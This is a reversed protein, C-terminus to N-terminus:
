ETPLSISPVGSYNSWPQGMPEREVLSSTEIPLTNSLFLTVTDVFLVHGAIPCLFLFGVAMGFHFIVGTLTRASSAGSAMSPWVM